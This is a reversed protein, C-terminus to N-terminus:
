EHKVDAINDRLYLLSSKHVNEIYNNKIQFEIVDFIKTLDINDIDAIIENSIFKNKKQNTVFNYNKILIIEKNEESELIEYFNDISTLNYINDALFVYAYKEYRAWYIENMKADIAVILPKERENDPVSLALIQFSNLSVIPTNLYFGIAKIYTLAVRLSTFNGPGQNYSIIKIEKKKLNAEILMEKVSEIIVGSINTKQHIKRQYIKKDKKLALVSIASSTDIYLIM